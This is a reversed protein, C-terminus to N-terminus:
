GSTARRRRALDRARPSGDGRAGCVVHVTRSACLQPTLGTVCRPPESPRRAADHRTTLASNVCAATFRGAGLRLPEQRPLAVDLTHPHVDTRPRLGVHRGLPGSRTALGRGSSPTSPPVMPEGTGRSTPESRHTPARDEADGEVPQRGRTRDREDCEQDFPQRRGPRPLHVADREDVPERRRDADPDEADYGAHDDVRHEMKPHLRVVVRVPRRDVPVCSDLDGPRDNRRDEDDGDPDDRRDHQRLVATGPRVRQVHLHERLLERPMELVRVVLVHLRRLEDNRHVAVDPEVEVRGIHDMREPHGLPTLLLVGNRSDVGVDDDRRRSGAVERQDARLEAPEPVRRHARRDPDDGLRIERFPHLLLGPAAAPAPVM